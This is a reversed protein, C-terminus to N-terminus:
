RDKEIIIKGGEQRVRVFDGKEVGLDMAYQKPLVVCFSCSGVVSITRYQYESNEKQSM